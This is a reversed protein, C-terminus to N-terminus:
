DLLNRNNKWRSNRNGYYHGFVCGTDIGIRDKKYPTWKGTIYETPTHGFFIPKKFMM